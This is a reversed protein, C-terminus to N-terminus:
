MVACNSDFVPIQLAISWCDYLFHTYNVCTTTRSPFRNVMMCGVSKWACSGSEAFTNYTANRLGFGEMFIVTSLPLRNGEKRRPVREMLIGIGKEEWSGKSQRGEEQQKSDDGCELVFRCCSLRLSHSYRPNPYGLSPSSLRETSPPGFRRIAIIRTLLM